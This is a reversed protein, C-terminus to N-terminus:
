PYNYGGNRFQDEALTLCMDCFFDPYQSHETCLDYAIRFYCFRTDYDYRNQFKFRRLGEEYFYQPENINMM